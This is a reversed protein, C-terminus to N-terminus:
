FWLLLVCSAIRCRRNREKLSYKWTSRKMRANPNLLLVYHLMYSAKKEVTLCVPDCFCICYYSVFDVATAIATLMIMSAFFICAAADSDAGSM